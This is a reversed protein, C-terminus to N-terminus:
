TQQELRKEIQELRLEIEFTEKSKFAFSLIKDAASLKTKECESDLLDVLAEVAKQSANKLGDMAESFLQNRQTDVERKYAPDQLWQWVQRSCVDAERAAQEVSPCKVLYPITHLQKPTFSTTNEM